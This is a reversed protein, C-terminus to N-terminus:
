GCHVVRTMFIISTVGVVVWGVVNAISQPAIRSVWAHAFIALAVLFLGAAETAIHLSM